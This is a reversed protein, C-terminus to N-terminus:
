EGATRAAIRELAYVMEDYSAQTVPDIYGSHFAAMAQAIRVIRLPKNEETVTYIPTYTYGTVKTEGSELNKTIEVELIM